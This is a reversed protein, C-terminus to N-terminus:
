PCESETPTASAKWRATAGRRLDTVPQSRGSSRSFTSMGASAILTITCKLTTWGGAAAQTM